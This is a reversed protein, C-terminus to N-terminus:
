KITIGELGTLSWKCKETEIRIFYNSPGLNDFVLVRTDRSFKQIVKTEKFESKGAFADYLRITFPGEGNRYILFIKGTNQGETPQEVEFDFDLDCDKQSRQAMATSNLLVLLLSLLVLIRTEPKM